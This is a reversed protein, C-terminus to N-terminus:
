GLRRRRDDEQHRLFRTVSRQDVRAFARKVWHRHMCQKIAWLNAAQRVFSSRAGLGPFWARWHGHFYSWIQKDQSMGLYAGVIELTLAEEDSLAPAFGRRRLPTSAVAAYAECIECYTRIIFEDLPM